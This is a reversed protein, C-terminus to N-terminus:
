GIEEDILCILPKFFLEIFCDEELLLVVFIVEMIAGVAGVAGIADVVGADVDVTEISGIAGAGIVSTADITGCVEEFITLLLEALESCTPM